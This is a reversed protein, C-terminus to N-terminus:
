EEHLITNLKINREKMKVFGEIMDYFVHYNLTLIEGEYSYKISFMYYKAANGHISIYTSLRDIFNTNKSAYTELIYIIDEKTFNLYSYEPMIHLKFDNMM